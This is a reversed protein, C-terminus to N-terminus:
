PPIAFIQQASGGTQQSQYSPVNTVHPDGAGAISSSQDVSGGQLQYPPVNAAHMADTGTVGGISAPDKIWDLMEFCTMLEVYSNSPDRTAPVCDNLAAIAYGKWEKAVRDKAATEERICADYGSSDPTESARKCGKEVYYTPIAHYSPAAKAGAIRQVIRPSTSVSHDIAGALDASAERESARAGLSDANTDVGVAACGSLFLGAATVVLFKCMASGGRLKRRRDGSGITPPEPEDQGEPPAWLIEGRERCHMRNVLCQIFSLGVCAPKAEGLLTFREDVFGFCNASQPANADGTPEAKTFSPYKKGPAGRDRAPSGVRRLAGIPILADHARMADLVQRNIPRDDHRQRDGPQPARERCACV